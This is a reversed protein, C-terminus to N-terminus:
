GGIVPYIKRGATGNVVTAASLYVAVIGAALLLWAPIHPIWTPMGALKLDNLAIFPLALDLLAVVISLLTVKHFFAPTWLWVVVTLICWVYGDVRGDLPSGDTIAKYKMLMELGSVLMFFASFFLFTNGGALNGGKLDLLAVIIQVVFGGILWCGILPMAAATVRGSLLVFFCVCAAALAVLGAPTPNAWPKQASAQPQTEQNEM